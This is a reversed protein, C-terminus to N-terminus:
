QSPVYIAVGKAEKGTRTNAVVMATGVPAGPNPIMVIGSSGIQYNGVGELLIGNAGVKAAEKKLREIAANTLTQDTVFDHRSDASVIAIQEYKEPLTTYLKVEAPNTAPRPTGIIVHSGRTLVCGSPILLALAIGVLKRLHAQM